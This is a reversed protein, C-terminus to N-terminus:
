WNNFPNKVLYSNYYRLDGTVEDALWDPKEFIASESDLEIEALTLGSNEGKFEDIEFIYKGNPVRYRIKEIQGPECLALLSKAETVSIEKEWEFRSLGSANSIGKVTIFGLDDMIRIRVNREPHSSLYGQAIYSHSIAFNKYDSSSVRFKREIELM